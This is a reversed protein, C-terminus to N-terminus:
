FKRRNSSVRPSLSISQGAHIHNLTVSCPAEREAQRPSVTLKPILPLQAWIGTKGCAYEQKAESSAQAEARDGTFVKKLPNGQPNCLSGSICHRASGGDTQHPGVTWWSDTTRARRDRGGTFPGEGRRGPKIEWRYCKRADASGSQGGGNVELFWPTWSGTLFIHGTMQNSVKLSSVSLVEPGCCRSLATAKQRSKQNQTLKSQNGQRIWM